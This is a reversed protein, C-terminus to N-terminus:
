TIIKWKDVEEKIHDIFSNGGMAKYACYCALFNEYEYQRITSKDKNHYYTELMQGRLLCKVGERQKEDKFLRSRIPKIFLAIAGSVVIIGDVVAVIALFTSM